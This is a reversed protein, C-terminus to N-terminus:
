YVLRMAPAHNRAFGMSVYLQEAEASAHLDIKHVGRARYWDLLATMCARAHGRRRLDPDTAVNFVYGMLGTPNDPGPLRLEVTGTACAALAPATGGGQATRATADGQGSSMESPEGQMDMEGWKGSQNSIPQDVVFAAFDGGPDALRKRLIQVAHPQWGRDDSRGLSDLMITRLRVLEEADEPTARRVPSPATM